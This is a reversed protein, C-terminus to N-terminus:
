HSRNHYPRMNLKATAPSTDLVEKPIFHHYRLRNSQEAIRATPTLAVKQVQGEVLSSDQEQSM